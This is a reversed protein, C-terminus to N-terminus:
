ATVTLSQRVREIDAAMRTERWREYAVRDREIVGESNAREYGPDWTSKGAFPHDHEIIADPLYHYRGLQVGVDRVANDVFQHELEPLFYWGLANVIAASIFPATPLKEHQFMDDGYAIGPERLAATVAKDWGDTRPVHDDGWNGIIADPHEYVLRVAASNTARVLDGTEAPDLGILWTHDPDWGFRKRDPGDAVAQYQSFLPDDRDVVLVPRTDPLAATKRIAHLVDGARQPRGRTPIVVLIM